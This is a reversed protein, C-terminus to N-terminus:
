GHRKGFVVHTPTDGTVVSRVSNQLAAQDKQLFESIDPSSLVERIRRAIESRKSQLSANQQDELSPERLTSSVRRHLPSNPARSGYFAGLEDSCVGEASRVVEEAYASKERGTWSKYSAQLDSLLSRLRRTRSTAQMPRLFSDEVLESTYYTSTMSDISDFGNDEVIHLVRELRAELCEEDTDEYRATSDRGQGNSGASVPSATSFAKASAPRQPAFDEHQAKTNRRQQGADHDHQLSLPTYHFVSQKSTDSSLSEGDSSFRSRETRARYNSHSGHPSVLHVAAPLAQIAAMPKHGIPDWIEHAPHYTQSWYDWDILHMFEAGVPQAKRACAHRETPVPPFRQTLSIPPGETQQLQSLDTLDQDHAGPIQLDTRSEWSSPSPMLRFHPGPLTPLVPHPPPTPLPPDSSM